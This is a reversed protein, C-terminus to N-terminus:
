EVIVRDTASRGFTEPHYMEEVRTPPTVFSGLATARALYTYEYVGAYLRSAFAEVREDRLNQHEFWRWARSRGWGRSTPGARHEDEDVPEMSIALDPNLPELGAPLSDVLAVHYRRTPTALLLQVRVRTGARIHWTGDEDRSVDADDDVAEYKREVTFGNETAELQLSKPAYRMGIRYYLRGQGEKALVLDQEGHGEFAAMPVEIRARETTRGEFRHEGAFRDGLWVRSLFDPTVSERADFYGDLALLIFANEQTNSWRGKLRHDLLGRVLKEILDNNPSVALLAELLVGDARRSSHLLVYEGDSYRSVFHAGSATETVRNGLHRLIEDVDTKHGADHLVPLLFGLSEISLGELGASQYLAHAKEGEILGTLRSIYLAYARLMYNSRESYDLDAIQELNGLYVFARNWLRDDVEFGNIKARALAHAVHLSTFPNSENDRRWFGFGGDGNQRQVLTALMAAVSAELEAAPPLSESDFATLVDRLAAIALIRSALQEGCGFPYKILYIFADTLAQLQTSSTEVELGGFQTWIDEPVRVPQTVAGGELDGYTAFAESTAPTYVPLSFAIADEHLDSAAIAQFSATGVSTAKAAFRVERRDGAPVSVRKGLLRAEGGLAIGEGRVAVDVSRGRDSLNQVVLSLEFRDGFNLFRPPSPRVMLPLRATLTSEGAGFRQSGAAAVALVRYRTLSDPLTFDAVARGHADTMVRPAFAALARFDSRPKLRAVGQQWGSRVMLNPASFAAERRVERREMSRTTVVHARQDYTRVGGHRPAYFFAMPDPLAYDTLALVAEDVVVVAVEAGAVPEGDADVVYLDVTGDSGPLLLESSPTAEVKLTRALPPVAFRLHGRGYAVRAPADAIPDGAEDRRLASGLLDVQVMVNPIHGEEIPIHLTHSPGTMSFRETRVLGSRQVTLVGEAPHFPAQVLISAIDGPQYNQKEPVLLVEELELGRSPLGEGGVVWFHLSTENRRQDEDEVNAILRYSGGVKPKFLCSFTGSAKSKARCHIADVETPKLEGAVFAKKMRAMRVEVPVARDAAGDIDVVIGDLEVEDGLGVFGRPMRLGVYRMAPHVLLNESSSLKQRNVDTISGTVTVAVPQPLDSPAFDIALGHRGVLDTKGELKAVSRSSQSRDIRRWWPRWVGFHYDGRNPPSYRAASTEVSWDVPASSLPGGSYYRAKLALEAEGGAFFPGASVRTEVEFQPRRFEEVRIRHSASAGLLREGDAQTATRISLAAFGLNMDSPLDFAIDFGGLASLETKGSALKDGLPGQLSWHLPSVNGDFDTLDGGKSRDLVRLWGKVRVSEGPRYIGRDDFTFWSLALGGDRKRWHQLGENLIALDRGRRAVLFLPASTGIAGVSMRALGDAGSRTVRGPELSLEVDPAARGDTLETVWVVLETQDTFATLGLDTVQVWVAV